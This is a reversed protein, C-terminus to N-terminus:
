LTDTSERYFDLKAVIEGELVEGTKHFGLSEYLREAALNEPEWSILVFPCALQERLREILLEMAKRGYGKRQQRGDIMLRWIWVNGDDSSTDYMTFGVPDDAHYIGLPVLTPYVRAEAISYLNPAVFSQQEVPLELRILAEWNDRTIERLTVSM